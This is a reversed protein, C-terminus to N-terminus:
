NRGLELDEVKIIYEDKIEAFTDINSKHQEVDGEIERLWALLAKATEQRIGITSVLKLPEIETIDKMNLLDAAKQVLKERAIAWGSNETLSKLKEGTTFVKQTEKDLKKAM